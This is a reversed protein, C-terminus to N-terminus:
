SRPDFPLVPKEDPEAPEVLNHVSVGLLRVARRGAETRDLLARARAAIEDANRTAPLQSHSRTITTFDSYRVKITVTRCVLLKRALWAADDRAMEDIASRIRDLDTLDQAFTNETGCSKAARNPEVPRDDVGDALRRLWDMQNGVAEQLVASDASRVDVLRNIGRERLRKATVPGVGWLADVPLKQLFPEVREPAIVTLGDPKRWASAIKALFKNPAVGASATLQTTDRIESKLRRAVERGLTEGWANETVDLYAEDLSLPEVLPTVSHFIKFVAQSAVRYRAFDPRVILLSPCLRVARSMPMASRVGFARAEYSAAAVVGRQSPDGGVAVPKGRLSPDDRQEVSAYFADMDIHVIRRLPCDVTTLRQDDTVTALGLGLDLV